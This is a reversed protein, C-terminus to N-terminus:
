GGPYRRPRMWGSSSSTSRRTASGIGIQEGAARAQETTFHADEGM